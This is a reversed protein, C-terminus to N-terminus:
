RVRGLVWRGCVIEELVAPDQRLDEIELNVLAAVVIETRRNPIKGSRQKLEPPLCSPAFDAPRVQREAGKDLVPQAGGNGHIPRFEVWM